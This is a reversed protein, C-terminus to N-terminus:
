PLQSQQMGKDHEAQQDASTRDAQERNCAYAQAKREASTKPSSECSYGGGSGGSNNALGWRACGALLFPLSLVLLLRRM